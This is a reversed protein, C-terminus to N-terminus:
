SNTHTSAPPFGDALSPTHWNLLVCVQGFGGKGLMIRDGSADLEYSLHEHGSSSGGKQFATEADWAFRRMVHRLWIAFVGAASLAVVAAVGGTASHVMVAAKARREQALEEAACICM